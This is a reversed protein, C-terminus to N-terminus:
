PVCVTLARSKITVDLSDSSYSEGDIVYDIPQNSEITISQASLYQFHEVQEKAGLSKILIDSLAVFRDSLSETKELYTIHLKGDDPEPIDGGQALVTSFPSTNAIVLSQLDMEQSPEGDISLQFHQNKGVVVANFIGSLYALQGMANKQERHAYDIMQEEFGIGLVLLIPQENCFAVDIKKTNGSLIAQCSKDVPSVKTGLGYLVHCLANATGLPIIGLPINTNMVHQAVESVTGDGGSVIIHQADKEIAQQVLDDASINESTTVITLNYKKTLSRIVEQQHTKWKGGGAVPNAILYASSELNLLGKDSIATLTNLQLKNLRATSRVDNIKTLAEEVSLSPNKALLYAAVVFVSRGRGLACHVVVSRSQNIQTDIWNLTHKLENIKPAKHDLVPMNFYHFRDDTMVSEIGVFEATVDVICRIDQSELFSIDSPFLRRSVYLNSDIQQIPIVKDKRIARANYIKAGLLFPIFVWRIWWVIKGDTRKRFISPVDFIYAASVISMSLGCWAFFVSLVIQPVLIAAIFCAIAISLYYKIIFM